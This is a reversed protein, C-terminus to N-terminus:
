KDKRRLHGTHCSERTGRGLFLLSWREARLPCPTYSSNWRTHWGSDGPRSTKSSHGLSSLFFLSTPPASEAHFLGNELIRYGEIQREM